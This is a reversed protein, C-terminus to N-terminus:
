INKRYKLRNDQLFAYVSMTSDVVTAQSVPIVLPVVTFRPFATLKRNPSETFTAQSAPPHLPSAPTPHLIGPRSTLSDESRLM